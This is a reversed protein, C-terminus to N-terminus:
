FNQDNEDFDKLTTQGLRLLEDQQSRTASTEKLYSTLQNRLNSAAEESKALQDMLNLSLLAFVDLSSLNSNADRIEAIQADLRDQLMRVWSENNETSIYYNHDMVSVKYRNM